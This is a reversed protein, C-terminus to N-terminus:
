FEDWNDAKAPANAKAPAASFKGIPAHAPIRPNAAAPKKVAPRAPAPHAVAGTQFQGVLRALEAAEGSLSHSAATAEEVMAANQQTVQDMQNVATNVEHLGTAQEQASAAIESVLRNLQEVQEVTRSLAKGTEGVLTVGSAVQAGSASILTKIEKAADASRQALARVETAVVAFGRGADGARAAEVGANLALLNTQFAIEDIVGIINGIQKSSTEIGSMAAVTEKVVEGSREADTKAAAVVKRAENAGEATKRVTATIEDLAAATEELSAAQQETRRSLDDSAQTIEEAGSRVAQTNAGISVMTEQLTAMAANFDQRLAAYEAPLINDAIRHTLTGAALAKLADGLTQLITENAAKERDELAKRATDQAELYVSIALDMDLFAAKTLAALELAVEAPKAQKSGRKWFGPKPWRAALVAAVLQEVILAYGGIYWRPELGIRAHIEGVKTVAALYTQEFKGDSIMDWHSQQRGKASAVMSSTAFFAKTEPESQIKQYFVELAEPLALMLVPKMAKLRAMAAVDLNLFRLRGALSNEKSM